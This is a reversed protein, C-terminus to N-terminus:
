VILELPNAREARDDVVETVLTDVILPTSCVRIGFSV